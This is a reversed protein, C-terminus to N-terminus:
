GTCPVTPHGNGVGASAVGILTPPPPHRHSTNCYYTPPARTLRYSRTPHGHEGLVDDPRNGADLGPPRVSAKM